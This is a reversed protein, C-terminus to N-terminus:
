SVVNPTVGIRSVPYHAHEQRVFFVSATGGCYKTHMSTGFFLRSLLFTAVTAVRSLGQQSHMGQSIRQPGQCAIGKFGALMDVHISFRSAFTYSACTLTERVPVM